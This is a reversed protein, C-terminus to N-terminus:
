CRPYISSDKVYILDTQRRIRRQYLKVYGGVLMPVLIRGELTSLSGNELENFSLIRDDYTVAGHPKFLHHPPREAKYRDVVKSM